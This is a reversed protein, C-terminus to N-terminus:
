LRRVSIVADIKEISKVIRQLEALRKMAIRFSHIAKKEETTHVLARVINLNAASIATSLKALMGKQDHSIIEISAETEGEVEKDWLAPLIRESLAELGKPCDARHIEVLDENRVAVVEDGMLPRCCPAFLLAPDNFSKIVVVPKGLELDTPEPPPPPTATKKRSPTKKKAGKKAAPKKKGKASRVQSRLEEPPVLRTLVRRVPFRGFGIAELLRNPSSFNFRRAVNAIVGEELMAGLTRNHRLLEAELIQRGMERMQEAEKTTIWHAIKAKARTSKVIELWARSPEVIKSTLMEVTDGSMLTHNLPVIRGNIKAGASRNGIDSHIAYAFDIPTAGIPLEIMDGKPTFVIIEEPVVEAKVSELFHYPDKLEEHFEVLHHLFELTKEEPGSPATSGTEKYRWHAAIGYEAIAHMEATRIQIEDREGDPGIVTTHLSRYMNHKPLAIYDKIRGPVPTFFSHIVRLADYCDPISNVLIRFAVLDHVEEFGLKQREMKQYISYLHKFRGSVMAETGAEKLRTELIKTVRDIYDQRAERTKAVQSALREYLDPKLNRFSLDELQAQIWHIGLRGAIPAYIEMTEQAIARQREEGLFELTRMNHLRDALKILIVRVDQAMALIMKRYNEAQVEIRTADPTIKGIKTVGDVLRTIEKGFERDLDEITISSDELVDHLLGAAIATEHLKLELLIEAVELPHSLYPMGSRRLSGAHLKASWVYAKQVLAVDAEPHYAQLRDIIENIRILAV